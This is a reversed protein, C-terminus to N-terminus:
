YKYVTDPMSVGARPQIPAHRPTHCPPAGPPPGGAPPEVAVDPRGILLAFLVDVVGSGVDVAVMEVVELVLVLPKGITEAFLVVGTTPGVPVPKGGRGGTV